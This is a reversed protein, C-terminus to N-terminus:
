KWEVRPNRTGFVYAPVMNQLKAYRRITDASILRGAYCFGCDGRLCGFNPAPWCIMRKSNPKVTVM